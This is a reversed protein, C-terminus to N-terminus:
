DFPLKTRIFALRTLGSGEQLVTIEKLDIRMGAPENLHVNREFSFANV